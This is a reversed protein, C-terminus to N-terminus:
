TPRRADDSSFQDYGNKAWPAQGAGTRREIRLARVDCPPPPRFAGRPVALGPTAEFVQSWRAFAPADTRSWRRVLWSPLLVNASVLRSGPQLLRRLLAASIHFPPNSVVHFPRRPLFLDSADASVVVVREAFRGRLYAARGPHAEVAIVRAGAGLLAATLAGRGAGVDLVLAGPPLRADAVLGAAWGPALEHWGWPRPAAM